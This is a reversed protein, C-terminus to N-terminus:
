WQNELIVFLPKVVEDALKKLVTPHTEDLGTYKPM